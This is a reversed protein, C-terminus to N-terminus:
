QFECVIGVTQDALIELSNVALHSAEDHRLVAQDASKDMSHWTMPRSWNNHNNGILAYVSQSVISKTGRDILLLQAAVIIGCNSAVAVAARRYPWVVPWGARVSQGGRITRNRGGSGKEAKGSRIGCAGM